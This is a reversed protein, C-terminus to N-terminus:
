IINKFRMINQMFAFFILSSTLTKFVDKVLTGTITLGMNLQFCHDVDFYKAVASLEQLGAEWTYFVTPVELLFAPQWFRSWWEDM